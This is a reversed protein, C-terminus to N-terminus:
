FKKLNVTLDTPKSYTYFIDKFEMIEYNIGNVVATFGGVGDNPISYGARIIARALACDNCDFFNSTEFDEKLLTLTIIQEM